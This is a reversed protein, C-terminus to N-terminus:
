RLSCWMTQVAHQLNQIALFLPLMFNFDLKKLFIKTTDSVSGMERMRRKRRRRRKHSVKKM